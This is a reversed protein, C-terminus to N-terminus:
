RQKAPDVHSPKSSSRALGVLVRLLQIIKNCLMYIAPMFELLLVTVFVHCAAGEEVKGAAAARAAM